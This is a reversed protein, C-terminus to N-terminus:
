SDQNEFYSHSYLGFEPNGVSEFLLWSFIPVRVADTSIMYLGKDGNGNNRSQM